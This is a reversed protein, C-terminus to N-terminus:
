SVYIRIKNEEIFVVRGVPPASAIYTLYVGCYTHLMLLCTWIVNQFSVSIEKYV